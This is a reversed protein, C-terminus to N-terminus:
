NRVFRFAIRISFRFEMSCVYLAPKTLASNRLNRFMTEALEKLITADKASEGAFRGGVAFCVSVSLPGVIVVRMRAIAYASAAASVPAPSVVVYAAGFVGAGIPASENLHM